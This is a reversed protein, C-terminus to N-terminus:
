KRNGPIQRNSKGKEFFISKLLNVESKYHFFFLSILLVFVFIKLSFIFFLSGPLKLYVMGSVIMFFFVIIFMKKWNFQIQKNNYIALILSFVSAFFISVLCSIGAGIGGYVPILILNLLVSISASSLTVIPVLKTKNIFLINIFFFYLGNFVYAFSVLPIVKWADRFKETVMFSLIEKSFLALGFAIFCYVVTLLEAVNIILTNGQAGMKEKEFFWPVYAQNVASTFVNVINGFQYGVSYIGTEAKGVINNVLIRDVMMTFWASLSHPVLPMSYGFASKLVSRDLKILIKPVFAIIVYILFIAATILNALLIGLVGMKLGVVFLIVLGLNLIFNAMMNIGYSVGQQKAQLYSQFFVYLPSLVTNLIGLFVFPFFDIGEAFPDLLFRHLLLFLSGLIVTNAVAFTTLTGWIKKIGTEDGLNDYHFRTAASQLSLLFLVSLFASITLIVNLVGFEEPTLFATYVPLLFFSIAKQLVSVIIYIASNKLLKVTSM